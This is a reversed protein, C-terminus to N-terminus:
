KRYRRNVHNLACTKILSMLCDGTSAGRQTKYFLANKRNLVALKLMRECLNNDLPAGEVVLFKTLGEWHKVLYALAKGLSSNAEVLREDFQEDIWERLSEMVEGSHAQHFALRECETMLQTAADHRYVQALTDLVRACERPFAQKWNSSSAARMHWVSRWSGRM